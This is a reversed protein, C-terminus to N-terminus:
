PNDRRKKANRKPAFHLYYELSTECISTRQEDDLTYFKGMFTLGHTMLSKRRQAVPDGVNIGLSRQTELGRRLNQLRQPLLSEAMENAVETARRINAPDFGGTGQERNVAAGRRGRSSQESSSFRGAGRERNRQQTIPGGIQGGLRARETRVDPNQTSMLNYATRDRPNREVIWRVYHAIVHDNYLLRVLNSESDSGGAFRPIIHHM